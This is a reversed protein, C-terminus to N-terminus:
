SEVCELRALVERLTPRLPFGLIIDDGDKPCLEEWRLKAQLYEDMAELRRTWMERSFLLTETATAALGGEGQWNRGGARGKPYLHTGVRVMRESPRSATTWEPAGRTCDVIIDRIESPSERFEPFEWECEAAYEESINNVTHSWGEFICWLLKGLSYVMAAEQREAPLANWVDFCGTEPNSYVPSDDARASVPIHEDLKARFRTKEAEPVLASRALRGLNEVHYIEPASFTEWNGSQEMDILAITDPGTCIVNDPKLESYYRAPSTTIWALVAALQKAWGLKTGFDLLGERRRRQIMQALNGLPYFPVVMGLVGPSEEDGGEGVVLYEPPAPLNAHRGLSLLMKLEHYLYRPETFRSKFVWLGERDVDVDHIRVLTVTNHLQRVFELQGLRLQPPLKLHHWMGQLATASLLHDAPAAYLSHFRVKVDDLNAALSEVLIRSGFPLAAYLRDFQPIRRSWRSLVACLYRAIPLQNVASGHTYAAEVTKLHHRLAPPHRAQDPIYVDIRRITLLPSLSSSAPGVPTLPVAFFQTGMSACGDIRWTVPPVDFDDADLRNCPNLASAAWCQEESTATPKKRELHDKLDMFVVTPCVLPLISASLEM